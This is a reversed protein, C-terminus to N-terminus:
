HPIPFPTFGVILFALVLWGLLIRGTGLPVYDNSTPPHRPGMMMLLFILLIWNGLAHFNLVVMVAAATLLITAVAHAKRRLLAYLVHGGDLQGIPVLNLSTIFLGVWGAYAVPHLALGLRPPIPGWILAVLWDFLLPTGLEPPGSLFLVHSWRIGLVCFLLTPVLGVLPGSIGIDFLARRDGMRSSMGIVAGFTGFPPIPMPIFFPFSAHVGYRRAQLFHGMEHCLLITMVAVAYKWGGGQEEFIWQGVFWTSLCTAIFLALPLWVRRRRVPPTTVMEATLEEPVLTAILIGPEPGAGEDFPSNESFKTNEM